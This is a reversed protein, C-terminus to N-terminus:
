STVRAVAAFKRAALLVTAIAVALALCVLLGGGGIGAFAYQLPGGRDWLLSGICRFYVPADSMYIVGPCYTDTVPRAEFFRLWSDTVRAAANVLTSAGALLAVLILLARSRAVLHAWGVVRARELLALVVVVPIVWALMLRPGWAVWGFPAAFDALIATNILLAALVAARGLRMSRPGTQVIGVVAAVVLPVLILMLPWYVLLGGSPSAWIATGAKAVFDLGPPRPHEDIYVVNRWSQYRWENFGVTALFGIVVGALTALAPARLLARDETRLRVALVGAALLVITLPSTDKTISALFAAVLVWGWRSRFALAAIPLLMLLAALPEGWTTADYFILPGSLVLAVGFAAGFRGAISRGLAATILATLAVSAISVYCLFSYPEWDPRRLMAFPMAPVHQFIPYQSVGTCPVTGERMCDWLIRAGGVLAVTDGSRAVGRYQLYLGWVVAIAAGSFGIWGTRRIARLM